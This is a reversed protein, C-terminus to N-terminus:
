MNKGKGLLLRPSPEGPNQLAPAQLTKYLRRRTQSSGYWCRWAWGPVHWYAVGGYAWEHFSGSEEEQPQWLPRHMTSGALTCWM